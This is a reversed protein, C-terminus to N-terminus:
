PRPIGTYPPGESAERTSVSETERLYRMAPHIPRTCNTESRRSFFIM